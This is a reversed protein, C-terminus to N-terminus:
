DPVSRGGAPPDTASPDPVAEHPAPQGAFPAGPFAPGAPGPFPPGSPEGPFASGSPQGPFAPGAGRGDFPRGSGRTVLAAILLGVGAASILSTILGIVSFLLGYRTASYDLTSYLAPIAMTWAIQLVSGVALAGLGLRGLLVSRPGIRERGTTILVFGAIVVALLPLHGLVASFLYGVSM